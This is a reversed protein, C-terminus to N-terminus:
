FKFRLGVKIPKIDKEPWVPISLIRKKYAAVQKEPSEAKSALMDIYDRVKEQAEPGLSNYKQLVNNM